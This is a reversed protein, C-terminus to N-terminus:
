GKEGDKKQDPNIILYQGLKSARLRKIRQRSAENEKERKNLYQNFEIPDNSMWYGDDKTSCVPYNHDQLSAVCDTIARSQIGILRVLDKSHIANAKGIHFQLIKLLRKSNDSLPKDKMQSADQSFVDDLDLCTQGYEM